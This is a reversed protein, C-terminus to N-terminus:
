RGLATSVLHYFFFGLNATWLALLCIMKTEQSALENSAAAITSQDKM